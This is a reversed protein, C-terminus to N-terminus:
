PTSDELLYSAFFAADQPANPTIKAVLHLRAWEYKVNVFKDRRGYELAHMRAMAAACPALEKHLDAQMCRRLRAKWGPVHQIGIGKALYQRSLVAAASAIAQPRYVLFEANIAALEILYNALSFSEETWGTKRLYRRLFTYATPQYLRFGLVKRVERARSRVEQDTCAGDTVFALWSSLESTEEADEKGQDVAAALTCAVGALQLEARSVRRLSLYADVHRFTRFLMEQPDSEGNLSAPATSSNHVQSIWDFLMARTMGTIQAPKVSDLELFVKCRAASLLAQKGAASLRNGWLDLEELATNVALAAALAEAGADGIANDRLSLRRLHSAGGLVAAFAAAGANGIGNDGLCLERVASRGPAALAQAVARAGLDGLSLRSLEEDPRFPPALRWELDRTAKCVLRMRARDAFTPLLDLCSQLLEPLLEQLRLRSDRPRLAPATRPSLCAGGGPALQIVWTRVPPVAQAQVRERPGKYPTGARATFSGPQPVSQSTPMTWTSGIQLVKKPVGSGQSASCGRLPSPTLGQPTGGLSLQPVGSRGTGQVFSGGATWQPTHGGSMGQQVSGRVAPAGPQAVNSGRAVGIGNRVVNQSVSGHMTMPQLGGNGHAVWQMDGSHASWQAGGSGRPTWPLNRHADWQPGSTGVLTADRCKLPLKVPGM